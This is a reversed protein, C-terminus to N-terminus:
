LLSDLRWGASVHDVRVTSNVKKGAQITQVVATATKGNVKVSEVTLTFDGVTKLQAKIVAQCDGVNAAKGANAVKQRLASDFVKTCIDQPNNSSADSAFSNLTSAVLGQTGTFSGSSGTSSAGGLSCGGLAVALCSVALM